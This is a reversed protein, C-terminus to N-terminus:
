LNKLCICSLTIEPKREESIGHLTSQLVRVKQQLLKTRLATPRAPSTRSINLISLPGKLITVTFAFIRKPAYVKHAKRHSPKLVCVDFKVVGSTAKHRLVWKLAALDDAVRLTQLCPGSFSHSLVEEIEMLGSSIGGKKKHTNLEMSSSKRLDVYLLAAIEERFNTEPTVTWSLSKLIVLSVFQRKDDRKEEAGCV